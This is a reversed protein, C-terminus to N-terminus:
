PKPQEPVSAPAAPPQVAPQVPQINQLLPAPIGRVCFRALGQIAPSEEIAEICKRESPYTALHNTDTAWVGFNNNAIVMIMWLAKM